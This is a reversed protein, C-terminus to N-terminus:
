ETKILPVFILYETDDNLITVSGSADALVIRDTTIGPPLVLNQLVVEFTEVAEARTDDTIPIFITESDAFGPGLSLTTSIPTFDSNVQASQAVTQADLEVIGDVAQDLAVIVNVFGVSETVTESTISIQAVDSDTITVRGYPDVIAGNEPNYIRVQFYEEPEVLDDGIITLEVTETLSGGNEFEIINLVTNYDAGATGSGEVTEIWVSSAFSNNSRGVEIEIGTTTGSGGEAVTLDGISFINTAIGTIQESVNENISYIWEAEAGVSVTNTLQDNFQSSVTVQYTLALSQSPDLSLNSALIPLDSVSTAVVVDPQSPTLIVSSPVFTLQSDLPNTIVINPVPINSINFVSVTFTIVQGPVAFDPGELTIRLKALGTEVAGIDCTTGGPRSAGRQDGAECSGNDGADIAPSEEDPELNQTFGGNYALGKLQPDVGIRSGNVGDGVECAGLAVDSIILHTYTSIVGECDVTDLENDPNAIISNKVIVVAGTNIGLETAGSKSFNGFLTSNNINLPGDAYIGAGTPISSNGTITSNIVRATAGETYMGSGSGSTAENSSILSRTVTIAGSNFIGAGKDGARNNTIASELVTLQGSSGNYIAGGTIASNNSLETRYISGTGLNYIGNNNGLEIQSNSLDFIAGTDNYIGAAFGAQDAQAGQITVDTLTLNGQNFITGGGAAGTANTYFTSSAITVRGSPGNYLAGGSGTSINEAVTSNTMSLTGSNFLAAGDFGSSKSLSVRNLTLHGANHILGGDLDNFDVGELMLGELTLNGTTTILFLRDTLTPSIVVPVDSRITLTQTIEFATSSVILAGDLAVDFDITGNDCSNIVADRLSGVGSDADTTVTHNLSCAAYAPRILTAVSALLLGTFFLISGLTAGRRFYKSTM